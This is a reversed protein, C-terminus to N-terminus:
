DFKALGYHINDETIMNSRAISIDSASPYSVGQLDYASYCKYQNVKKANLLKKYRRESIFYDKVKVFENKRNLIFKRVQFRNTKPDPFICVQYYSLSHQYDDDIKDDENFTNVFRYQIRRQGNPANNSMM